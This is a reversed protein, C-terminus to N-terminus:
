APDALVENVLARLDFEAGTIVWARTPDTRYYNFGLVDGAPIRERMARLVDDLREVPIFIREGRPRDDDPPPDIPPVAVGLGALARQV